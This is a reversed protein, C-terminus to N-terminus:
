NWILFEELQKHIAPLSYGREMFSQQAEKLASSKNLLLTKLLGLASVEDFLDCVATLRSFGTNKQCFEKMVNTNTEPFIQYEKITGNNRAIVRIIKKIFSSLEYNLETIIKGDKSEIDTSNIFTLTPVQYHAGRSISNSFRNVTIILDCVSILEDVETFSLDFFNFKTVVNKNAYYGASKDGIIYLDIGMDLSNLYYSIIRILNNYLREMSNFYCGIYEATQKVWHGIPFIVNKRESSLGMRQKIAVKSKYDIEGKDLFVPFYFVNNHSIIPDHPPVPRLIGEVWEPLVISYNDNEYISSNLHNFRCNGITDIVMCPIRFEALWEFKFISQFHKTNYYMHYDTFIMLDPKFEKVNNVFARYNEHINNSLLYYDCDRIGTFNTITETGIFFVPNGAKKFQEAIM